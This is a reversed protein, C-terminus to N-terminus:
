DLKKLYKYRKHFIFFGALGGLLTGISYLVSNLELKKTVVIGNILIIITLLAGTGISLYAKQMNSKAHRLGEIKVLERALEPEVGQKELMHRIAALAM